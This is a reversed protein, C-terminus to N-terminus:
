WKGFETFVLRGAKQEVEMFKEVGHMELRNELTKVQKEIWGLTHIECHDDGLSSELKRHSLAFWNVMRRSAIVEIKDEGAAQKWFLAHTFRHEIDRVLSLEQKTPVVNELEILKTM